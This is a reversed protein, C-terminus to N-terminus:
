GQGMLQSIADAFDMRVRYTAKHFQSRLIEKSAPKKAERVWASMTGRERKGPPNAILVDLRDRIEPYASNHLDAFYTFDPFSYSFAALRAEADKLVLPEIFAALTGPEFASRDLKHEDRRYVNRIIGLHYRMSWKIKENDTKELLEKVRDRIEPFYDNFYHSIYHFDGDSKGFPDYRSELRAWVDDIFVEDKMLPEKYKTGCAKDIDSLYRLIYSLPRAHFGGASSAVLDKVTLILSEIKGRERGIDTRGSTLNESIKKLDGQINSLLSVYRTPTKYKKFFGPHSREYEEIARLCSPTQIVVKYFDNKYAFDYGNFMKQWAQEDLDCLLDQVMQDGSYGPYHKLVHFLSALAGFSLRNKLSDINDKYLSLRQKREEEVAGDYYVLTPLVHSPCITEIIEKAVDVQHFYVAIQRYQDSHYAALNMMAFGRGIEERASEELMGARCKNVLKKYYAVVTAAVEVVYDHDDKGCLAKCLYEADTSHPLFLQRGQLYCLGRGAYGLLFEQDQESFAALHVPVDFINVAGLKMLCERRRQSLRPLGYLASFLSLITAEDVNEVQKEAYAQFYKSLVRLNTPLNARLSINNVKLRELKLSHVRALHRTIKKARAAQFDDLNILSDPERLNVESDVVNEYTLRMNALFWHRGAGGNAHEKFYNLILSVEEAAAQQINELVILLPGPGELLDDLEKRVKEWTWSKESVFVTFGEKEILKQAVQYSIISKGRGESGKIVFDHYKELGEVATRIYAEDKWFSGDTLQRANIEGGPLTRSERICDNLCVFQTLSLKNWIAEVGADVKDIKRELRQLGQWVQEVVSSVARVEGPLDEMKIEHIMAACVEDKQMAAVWDKLVATEEGDAPKEGRIYALLDKRLAEERGYYPAAIDENWPRLAENFCKRIHKDRGDKQIIPLPLSALFSGAVSILLSVINPDM